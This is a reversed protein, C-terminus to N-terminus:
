RRANRAFYRPVEALLYDRLLAVRAPVHRLPPSVVYVAGADTAYAPLVAELAGTALDEGTTLDPLLAIGMGARTLRQVFGMDDAVVRGSVRQTEWGRPGKLRWPDIGRSRRLVVCDHEGLDKFRRPRGREKLYAPAAYLRLASEAVKRAVLSSDDLPGARVALDVGEAVLDVQRPTMILELQIGPHRRLFTTFFQAEDDRGFDVPTTLRVTGRPERELESVMSSAEELGALAARTQEFYRQGAETLHLKRTTRQLLRVGLDEELRAVGRSVSSKPLGLQRAAATFSGAEVVRVFTGIQNIDVTAM